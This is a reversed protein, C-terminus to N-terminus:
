SAAIFAHITIATNSGNDLECVLATNEPLKWPPDVPIFQPIEARMKYRQTGGSGELFNGINASSGQPSMYIGTVYISQGAGPAAILEKEGSTTFEEYDPTQSFTQLYIFLTGSDIQTVQLGNLFQANLAISVTSGLPGAALRVLENASDGLTDSEGIVVRHNPATAGSWVIDTVFLATALEHGVQDLRAVNDFIQPSTAAPDTDGFAAYAFRITPPDSIAWDITLDNNGFEYIQGLARVQGSTSHIRVIAEEIFRRAAQPSRATANQGAVLRQYTTDGGGFSFGLGATASPLTPTLSGSLGFMTKPTLGVGPIPKKTPVEPTTNVGVKCSPGRLALYFVRRSAAKLWRLRFGDDEMSLLIANMLFSSVGQDFVAVLDERMTDFTRSTTTSSLTRIGTSVQNLTTAMGLSLVVDEPGRGDSDQDEDVGAVTDACLMMLFEPPGGSFGISDVLQEGEDASSDFSGIVVEALDDGALATFYVYDDTEPVNNGAQGATDTPVVITFGDADMSDIDFRWLVSGGGTAAILANPGVRRFGFAAPLGELTGQGSNYGVTRHNTGDSFGIGFQHGDFSVLDESHNATWFVLLKPEFGVGTVSQTDLENVLQGTDLQFSGTFTSLAM